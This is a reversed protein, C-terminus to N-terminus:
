RQLQRFLRAMLKVPNDLKEYDEKLKALEKATLDVGTEVSEKARLYFPMTSAGVAFGGISFKRM